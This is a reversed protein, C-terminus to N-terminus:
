LFLTVKIISIRPVHAKQCKTRILELALSLRQNIADNRTSLNMRLMDGVIRIDAINMLKEMRLIIQGINDYTGIFLDSISNRKIM